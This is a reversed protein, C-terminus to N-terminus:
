PLKAFGGLATTASGTLLTSVATDLMTLRGEDSNMWNGIRNATWGEPKANNTPDFKHM